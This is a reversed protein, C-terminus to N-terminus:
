WWMPRGNTSVKAETVQCYKPMSIHKVRQKQLQMDLDPKRLELCQLM